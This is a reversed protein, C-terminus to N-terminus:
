IVIRKREYLREPNSYFELVNKSVDKHKRINNKVM